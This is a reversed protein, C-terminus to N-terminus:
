ATKAGFKLWRSLALFVAFIAQAMGAIAAEHIYKTNDQFARPLFFAAGAYFHFVSFLFPMLIYLVGMYFLTTLVPRQNNTNLKFFHLLAIDRITFCLLALVLTSGMIETNVSMLWAALALVIPFTLIWRPCITFFDNYNKTRWADILRRYRVTNWGEQFAIVYLLFLSLVVVAVERTENYVIGLLHVSGIDFGSVYVIWFIVFGLWLWPSARMKMQNRIQWYVGIVFWLLTIVATITLFSSRDCSTGYWSVTLNILENSHGKPHWPNFIVDAVFPGGMLLGALHYPLVRMKNHAGTRNQIAMLSTFLAAAHVILGSLLLLSAFLFLDYYSLDYSPLNYGVVAVITVFAMMGGYWTYSTSGFLKGVTMTWPSLASLKQFDWTNSNVEEIVAEAAKHGGWIKVFLFFIGSAIIELTILPDDTHSVNSAAFFILGLVVPMAVARHLSFELWLNRRIEPNLRM